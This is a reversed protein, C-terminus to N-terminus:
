DAPGAGTFILIARGLFARQLALAPLESPLGQGPQKTGFQWPSTMEYPCRAVSFNLLGARKGGVKPGIGWVQNKHFYLFDLGSYHQYVPHDNYYGWLHFSGMKDRQHISSPGRSDVTLGM